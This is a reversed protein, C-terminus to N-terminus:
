MRGKKEKREGDDDHDWVLGSLSNVLSTETKIRERIKRKM